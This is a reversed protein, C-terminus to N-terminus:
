AIACERVISSVVHERHWLWRFNNSNMDFSDAVISLRLFLFGRDRATHRWFRLSSLM